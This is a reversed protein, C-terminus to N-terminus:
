LNRKWVEVPVCSMKFYINNFGLEAVNLLDQSQKLEAQLVAAREKAHTLKEQQQQKLTDFRFCLNKKTLCSCNERWLYM